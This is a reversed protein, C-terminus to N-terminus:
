WEDSSRMQVGPIEKIYDFVEPAPHFWEGRFSFAQLDVLIKKELSQSSKKEGPITAIIKLGYPNGQNLTQLRGNEGILRLTEGVKIFGDQTDEQVFYVM